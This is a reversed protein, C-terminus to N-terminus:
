LCPEGCKNPDAPAGSNNQQYGCAPCQGTEFAAQATANAHAGCVVLEGVVRVAAYTDHGWDPADGYECWNPERRTLDFQPTEAAADTIIGM